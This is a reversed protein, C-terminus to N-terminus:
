SPVPEDRDLLDNHVTAGLALGPTAMLARRARTASPGDPHVTCGALEDLRAALAEDIEDGPGPLDGWSDWPLVELGELAAADRILNGAVWWLGAEGSASLGYHDPDDRGSRCRRWVDGAVRFRDRPVDLPDIAIAMLDTQIQDVQADVLRWRGADADRVEAVWHDEGLGTGFYDSFGCRARAATGTARLLAVLLVTFQRCNGAVRREPPRPVGIPSPDLRLVEELVDAVRRLHVTRRAAEDLEVGYALALHEHVILGQCIAVLAGVDGPLDDVEVGAGLSTCPGPRLSPDRVDENSPM